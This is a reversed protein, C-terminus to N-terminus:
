IKPNDFDVRPDSAISKQLTARSTFREFRRSFKFPPNKTKLFSPKSSASHFIAANLTLLVSNFKALNTCSHYTFKEPVDLFDM